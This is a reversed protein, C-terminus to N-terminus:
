KLINQKIKVNAVYKYKRYIEIIIYKNYIYKYKFVYKSLYM